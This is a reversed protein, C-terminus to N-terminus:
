MQTCVCVSVLWNKYIWSARRGCLLLMKIHEKTASQVPFDKHDSIIHNSLMWWYCYCWWRRRRWWWCCCVVHQRWRAFIREMLAHPFFTLYITHAMHRRQIRQVRKKTKVNREGECVVGMSHEMHTYTCFAYIHKNVRAFSMVIACYHQRSHCMAFTSFPLPCNLMWFANIQLAM